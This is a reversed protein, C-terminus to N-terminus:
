ETKRTLVIGAGAALALVVAMANVPSKTPQPAPAATPNPQAGQTFLAPVNIVTGGTVSVVTTYDPYGPVRFTVTHSGAPIDRLTVPTIGVYANDIFVNAGGPVSYAFVQGTIDPSPGPANPVLTPWIDNVIGAQVQVQQTWVQYDPLMLKLTYTGPKLDTIYFAEDAPEVGKYVNDLFVSAGDPDSKIQLSGYEAAKPYPTMGPALSTTSGASISVQATYDYYGPKKLILSHSGPALPFSMDGNGRDIGDVYVEAGSPSIDLWGYSPPNPVLDVNVVCVQTGGNYDDCYQSQVSPQYGDMSVQITHWGSGVSYVTAPTTDYWFNDVSVDAGSPNSYIQFEVEASAPAICFLCALVMGTLFLARKMTMASQM